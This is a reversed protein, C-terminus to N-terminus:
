ISIFTLKHFSTDLADTYNQAIIDLSKLLLNRIFYKLDGGGEDGRFSFM